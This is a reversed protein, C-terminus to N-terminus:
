HSHVNVDLAKEKHIWNFVDYGRIILDEILEYPAQLLKDKDFNEQWITAWDRYADCCHEMEEIILDLESCESVAELLLDEQPKLLLRGKKRKILFDFDSISLKVQIKQKDEPRLWEVYPNGQAFRIVRNYNYNEM